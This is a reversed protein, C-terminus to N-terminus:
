KSSLNNLVKNEIITFRIRVSNSTLGNSTIRGGGCFIVKQEKANEDQGFVADESANQLGKQTASSVNSEEQM